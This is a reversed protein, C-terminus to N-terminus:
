IDEASKIGPLIGDCKLCKKGPNASGFSIRGCGPCKVLKERKVNQFTKIWDRDTPRLHRKEADKGTSFAEIFRNQLEEPLDNWLMVQAKYLNPAAPDTLGEITNSRDKPDFAFVADRGYIISQAEVAAAINRDMFAAAKKGDYPYGGVLLRYFAVAMSFYDTYVDSTHMVYQEPAMYGMTGYVSTKEPLCIDDFCVIRVDGTKPDIFFIGDNINKLIMGKSIHIRRFATAIQICANCFVEADPFSARFKGISLFRGTDVKELIYGFGKSASLHIIGEPGVPQVLTQLKTKGDDETVPDAALDEINKWIEPYTKTRSMGPRFEKFVLEKNDRLRLALYVEGYSDRGVMKGIGYEEGTDSRVVQFPTRKGRYMLEITRSYDGKIM